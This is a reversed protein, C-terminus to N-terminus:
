PTLLVDWPIMDGSFLQPLFIRNVTKEFSAIYYEIQNRTNSENKNELLIVLIDHQLSVLCKLKYDLATKLALEEIFVNSQGEVNFDSTSVKALICNFNGSIDLELLEAKSCVESLSEFEHHALKWIFDEKSKMRSAM